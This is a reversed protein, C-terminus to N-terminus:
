QRTREFSGMNKCGYAYAAMIEQEAKEIDIKGGKQSFRMCGYGLVSIKNGYRNSRYQM